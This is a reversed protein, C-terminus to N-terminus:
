TLSYSDASAGTTLTLATLWLSLRTEEKYHSDIDQLLTCMVDLIFKNFGVNFLQPTNLSSHELIMWLATWLDQLLGAESLDRTRVRRLLHHRQVLEATLASDTLGNEFRRSPDFDFESQFLRAYLQPCSHISLAAYISRCTLLLTHIEKPQVFPSSTTALFAIHELVDVPITDLSSPM